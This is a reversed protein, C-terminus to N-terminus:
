VGGQDCSYARREGGAAARTDEAAEALRLLWQPGRAAPSVFM